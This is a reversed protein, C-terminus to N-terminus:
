FNLRAGLTFTRGYDVIDLVQNEFRGRTVYQGDNLNLAEFFVNVNKNIDYSTTFDVTKSAELFTPETGTQSNNQTQGFFLFETAQWNFSVRAQFGNAEYFGIFNVSNGIGPLAFQNTYIYPNYPENTGM